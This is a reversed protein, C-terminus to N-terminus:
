RKRETESEIWRDAERGKFKIRMHVVLLTEKNKRWM